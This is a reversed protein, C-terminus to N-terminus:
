HNPLMPGGADHQPQQQFPATSNVTFHHVVERLGPFSFWSALWIVAAPILYRIFWRWAKEGAAKAFDIAAKQTDLISQVKSEISNVKDEVADMKRVLGPNGNGDGEVIFRIREVNDDTSEQAKATREQATAVRQQGAILDRIDSRNEEHRSNIAQMIANDDVM